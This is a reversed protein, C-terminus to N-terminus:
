QTHTLFLIRGTEKDIEMVLTGGMCSRCHLTGLIMWVGDKLEARLPMESDLQKKGFIPLAVAHAIAAATAEDPVFGDKPVFSRSTQVLRRNYEFEDHDSNQASGAVCLAIWVISVLFKNM